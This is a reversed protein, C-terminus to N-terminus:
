GLNAENITSISILIPAFVPILRTYEFRTQAHTHTPYL